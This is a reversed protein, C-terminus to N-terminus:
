TTPNASTLRIAKDIVTMMDNYQHFLELNREALQYVDFIASLKKTIHENTDKLLQLEDQWNPLAENEKRYAMKENHLDLYAQRLRTIENELTTTYTETDNHM